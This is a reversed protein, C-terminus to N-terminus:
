SIFHPLVVFFVLTLYQYAEVKLHSFHHRPHKNPMPFLLLQTEVQSYTALPVLTGTELLVM